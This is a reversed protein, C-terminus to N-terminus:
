DRTPQTDANTNCKQFMNTHLQLQHSILHVTVHQM